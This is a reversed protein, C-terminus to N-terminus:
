GSGTCGPASRRLRGQLIGAERFALLFIEQLMDEADEAHGLMRYAVAYLRTSHM